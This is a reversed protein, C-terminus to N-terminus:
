FRICLIKPCWLLLKLVEGIKESREKIELCSETTVKVARYTFIHYKKKFNLNLEGYASFQKRRKKLFVFYVFYISLHLFNQRLVPLKKVSGREM